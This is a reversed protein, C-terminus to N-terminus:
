NHPALEIVAQVMAIAAIAATESRLRCSGLSLLEFGRGELALLEGETLDGAPGILLHVPTTLRRLKKAPQARASLACCLFREQPKAINDLYGFLEQIGNCVHVTPLAARGSQESASRAIKEWRPLKSQLDKLQSKSQLSRAANWFIIQEVGLETAKECVLDNAQPRGLAFILSKVETPVKVQSKLVKLLKIACPTVHSAIIAECETNSEEHVAVLPDGPELRLVRLLHRSSGEDLLIEPQAVESHLDAILAQAAKFFVRREHAM